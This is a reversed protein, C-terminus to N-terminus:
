GDQTDIPVRQTLVAADFPELARTKGSGKAPSGRSIFHNSVTLVLLLLFVISCVVTKCYRSCSSQIETTRGGNLILLCRNFSIFAAYNCRHKSFFYGDLHRVGS